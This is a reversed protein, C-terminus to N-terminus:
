HKVLIVAIAKDKQHTQLQCPRVVSTGRHMSHELGGWERGETTLKLARRDELITGKNLKTIKRGDRKFGDLALLIANVYYAVAKDVKFSETMMIERKTPKFSYDDAKSDDQESSIGGCPDCEVGVASQTLNQGDGQGGGLQNGIRQVLAHLCHDDKLSEIARQTKDSDIWCICTDDFTTLAAFPNPHGFAGMKYVHEFVQGHVEGMSKDHLDKEIPKKTEVEFVPLGSLEDFVVTHDYINSDLVSERRADLIIGEYGENKFLLNCISIADRLVDHVYVQVDFERNYGLQKGSRVESILSMLHSPKASMNKTMISHIETGDIDKMPLTGQLVVAPDRGTNKHLSKQGKLVLKLKSAADETLDLCGALSMSENDTTLSQIQINQSQIQINQSKIQINQETLSVLFHLSSVLFHLSLDVDKETRLFEQHEDVVQNAFKAIEEESLGATSSAM